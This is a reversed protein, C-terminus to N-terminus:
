IDLADRAAKIIKQATTLPIGAAVSLDQPSAVALSEISSYGAEILKSAVTQSVGPLEDISKIIKKQQVEDAM